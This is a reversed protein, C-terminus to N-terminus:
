NTSANKLATRVDENDPMKELAAKYNNLALARNGTKEYAQGLSFYPWGDNPHLSVDLKFIEIAQSVNGADLLDGGWYHLSNETPVFSDDRMRLNRYADALTAYGQEDCIRALEELTPAPGKGTRGQLVFWGPPVGNTTPDTSVFQKSQRNNKLYGNLFQLTYKKVWEYTAMVDQRSYNDFDSTPLQNLVSSNFYYHKMPKMKLLFTDGYVLTSLWSGPVNGDLYSRDKTEADDAAAIFLLPASIRQPKMYPATETLEPHYRFAGDLAVLAKVRADRASTMLGASAGLSVGVIGVKETDANKLSSAFGILFSTDLMQAEVGEFDLTIGQTYAGTSATALVIYGHAALFECLEANDQATGGSGPAFIVVPFRGPVAVRKMGALMTKSLAKKGDEDAMDRVYQSFLKQQSTEFEKGSIGYDYQTITSSLYDQYKLTPQRNPQAPYWILVQIPRSRQGVTDRHNTMDYAAKSYRSNDLLQEIKLGVSYVEQSYAFSSFLFINLAFIASRINTM